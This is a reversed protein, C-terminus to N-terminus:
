AWPRVTAAWGRPTLTVRVRDLDEAAPPTAPGGDPHLKRYLRAALVHKCTRRRWLQDPCTCRWRPQGDAVLREVLYSRPGHQSRVFWLAVGAGAPRVHDALVLQVASAIRRAEAPREAM